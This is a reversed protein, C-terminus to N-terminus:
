INMIYDFVIRVNSLGGKKIYICKCADLSLALLSDHVHYLVHDTLFAVDVDSVM